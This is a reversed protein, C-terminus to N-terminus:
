NVRARNNPKSRLWGNRDSYRIARFLPFLFRFPHGRARLRKWFKERTETFSAFSSSNRTYRMLEGKIFAKENSFPHFPEFPIYLYKNLPKQFTSFNLVNSSINRHLFLHLFSIGSYSICYTLRICDTKSGLTDLLELLTDKPGDWIALIYDKISTTEQHQPDSFSTM